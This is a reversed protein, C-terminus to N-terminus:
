DTWEERTLYAGSGLLHTGKRNVCVSVTMGEDLVATGLRHTTVGKSPEM